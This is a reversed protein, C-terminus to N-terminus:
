GGSGMGVYVWDGAGGVVVFWSGLLFGWSVDERSGSLLLIGSGLRFGRRGRWVSLIV